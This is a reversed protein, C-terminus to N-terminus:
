KDNKKVVLQFKSGMLPYKKELWENLSKLFHIRSSKFLHNYTKLSITQYSSLYKEIIKQPDLGRSLDLGGATPSHIDIINYIQSDTLPHTIINENLLHQNIKSIIVNHRKIKKSFIEMPKIFFNFINLMRFLDIFFQTPNFILSIFRYIFLLKFSRFFEQNPEHSIIIIGGPRLVRYIEEFFSELDSIHHLV